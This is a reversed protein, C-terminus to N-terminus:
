PIDIRSNDKQDKTANSHYNHEIPVKFNIHLYDLLNRMIEQYVEKNRDSALYDMKIQKSSRLIIIIKSHYQFFPKSNKSQNYVAYHQLIFRQIKKEHFTKLPKPNNGRYLKVTSPFFVIKDPQLIVLFILLGIIIICIIMGILDILHHFGLFTSGLLIGIFISIIFLILYIPNFGSSYLTIKEESMIIDRM